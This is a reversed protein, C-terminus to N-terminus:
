EVKERMFHYVPANITKQFEEIIMDHLHDTIDLYDASPTINAFADFDLIFINKNDITNLLESYILHYDGKQVVVRFVMENTNEINFRDTPFVSNYYELFTKNDKNPLPCENIYRLGIRTFKLPINIVALFSKVVLNITDRFKKDSDPQNYTKHSGSSIDITDSSINITVDENASKFQWIKKSNMDELPIDSPKGEHGLNAFLLPRAIVLSSVPFSDIIKLQIDGIKSELYFLNPYKIQFVVQKVTPNPFIEEIPM